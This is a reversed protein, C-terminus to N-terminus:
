YNNNRFDGVISTSLIGAVVVWTDVMDSFSVIALSTIKMEYVSRSAPHCVFHAVERIRLHWQKPSSGRPGVERALMLM